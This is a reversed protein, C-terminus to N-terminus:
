HLASYIHYISLWDVTIAFVNIKIIVLDAMKIKKLHSVHKESLLPGLSCEHWIWHKYWLTCSQKVLGAIVSWREKKLWVYQRLLCGKHTFLTCLHVKQFHVAESCSKYKKKQSHIRFLFSTYELFFLIKLSPAPYTLLQNFTFCYSSHLTLQKPYFPRGFAYIYIYYYRARM